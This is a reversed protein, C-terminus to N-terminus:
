ATESEGTIKKRVIKLAAVYNLASGAPAAIIRSKLTGFPVSPTRCRVYDIHADFIDQAVAHLRELDKITDDIRSVNTMIEGKNTEDLPM